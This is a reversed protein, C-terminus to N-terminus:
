RKRPNQVNNWRFRYRGQPYAAVPSDTVYLPVLGDPMVVQEPCGNGLAVKKAAANGNFSYDMLADLLRYVVYYDYADCSLRTSPLNHEATYNYGRVVSKRVLVFDKESNPVNINQFMDIAMRHDNVKDEDYVQTILKTNPPFAQLQKQSIQYSYWEAQVFLFRGKEGWGEDVFGKYALSFAAGGGFSHGMFGVRKSDIFNPYKSVAAKFSQWLTNYRDDVSGGFTPYPAFVVAYGKKAIFSFLNINFSSKEGGFPHCYFIVPCPGDSQKPYFIEVDKGKYLPSPFAVRAVSYTGDQGYGNTPKSVPGQYEQIDQALIADPLAFLLHLLLILFVKYEM